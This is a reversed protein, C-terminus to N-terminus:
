ESTEATDFIFSKGQQLYILLYAAAHWNYLAYGM